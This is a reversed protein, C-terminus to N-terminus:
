GLPVKEFVWPKYIPYETIKWAKFGKKALLKAKKTECEAGHMEKNYDLGLKKADKRSCEIVGYELMGNANIEQWSKKVNAARRKLRETLQRYTKARVTCFHAKVNKSEAYRLIDLGLRKSGNVAYSYKKQKFGRNKLENWNTESFEFENLNLFTGKEACFDVLKKLYEKKGPICPVELGVDMKTKLANEINNLSHFRIEDLGSKELAKLKKYAASNGYTYLHSHFSSGFEKKLANLYKVIKPVALLPEGGTIGVGKADMERAEKIAGKVSKVPRENAYAKGKGRKEDSIPCYWCKNPCKGTVFLVLKSGQWCLECGKPIFTWASGYKNKRM